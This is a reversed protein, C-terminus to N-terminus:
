KVTRPMKKPNKTKQNQENKSPTQLFCLKESGYWSYLHKRVHEEPGYTRQWARISLSRFVAVSSQTDDDGWGWGLGSWPARRANRQAHNTAAGFIIMM